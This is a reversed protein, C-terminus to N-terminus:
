ERQQTTDTRESIRIVQTATLTVLSFVGLVISAGIEGLWVFFAAMVLTVSAVFTISPMLAKVDDM